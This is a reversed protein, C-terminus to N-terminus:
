YAPRQNAAIRSWFDPISERGEPLVQIMLLTPICSTILESPVQESNRPLKSGLTKSLQYQWEGARNVAHFIILEFNGFFLNSISSFYLWKYLFEHFGCAQGNAEKLQVLVMAIHKKFPESGKICIRWKQKGIHQREYKQAGDIDKKDLVRNLESM